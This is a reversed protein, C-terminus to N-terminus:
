VIVCYLPYKGNPNYDMSLQRCIVKATDEDYENSCLAGWTRYRCIEIRGNSYDTGDVLKVAGNECSTNEEACYSLLM